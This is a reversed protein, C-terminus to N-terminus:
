QEEEPDKAHVAALTLLAAIKQDLASPPALFGLFHAYIAKIHAVPEAYDGLEERLKRVQHERAVDRPTRKTM